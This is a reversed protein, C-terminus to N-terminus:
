ASVGGSAGAVGGVVVQAPARLKRWGELGLPVMILAFGILLVFSQYTYRMDSWGEMLTFYQAVCMAFLVVLTYGLSRDRAEDPRRDALAMPLLFVFHCYYNSPYFFFPILLLGLLAVQHLPRGRAALFVLAFAALNLLYFLPRLTAFNSVQERMWIDWPEPMNSRVLAEGTEWPRWSLVNRLGVNNTSPGVAHLEIKKLWTAWGDRFGFILGAVVVLGVVCVAAGAVARVTTREASLLGRLTLPSRDSRDRLTDIIWWALPVLLFLAALAPFARILGGYALLFGGLFPRGSKLACAGLGLAVLWDQRLTSGMLNSGFQYFDTAGFLIVVYLMIRLGFTRYVVLFLVLLLVPDILGALTLTTENAPATRFIAYAGLLWVPTANGGHDQMSGLYDRPGMTDVLYKMDKKFEEWREPTFRARIAPLQPAAEAATIMRYDTLDRLKQDKVNDTTKEGALDLYAALCALYLGDFRLEKFYKATPYYHRMDWTHVLTRRGKAVDMFQAKGFHYYCAISLLALLGLTIKNVRPNPAQDLRYFTEKIVVVGALFAVVARVLSEEDTNDFPYIDALASAAAIGAAVPIAALIYQWRPGNRRHGLLFVMSLAAFVWLSTRVTETLPVGRARGLSVAPFGAPCDSFAAVEGVSYSGDGGRATLRLYRASAQISASRMRMGAGSAPGGQWLSRFSKGDESGLLDYTDNNDGQVLVCRVPRTAGLDWTVSSDTDRFRATIGTLWFSGEHAAVGDALRATNTVGSVDSPRHQALLNGALPTGGGGGGGSCSGALVGLSIFLLARASCALHAALPRALRRSARMPRM